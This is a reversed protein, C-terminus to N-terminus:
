LFADGKYYNSRKKLIIVVRTAECGQDKAKHQVNQTMFVASVYVNHHKGVPTAWLTEGTQRDLAYVYGMKGAALIIKRPKGDLYAESLIVSNQMDLDFLDHPLVQNYWLLHGTRYDIAL